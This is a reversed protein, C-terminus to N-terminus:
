VGPPCEFLGGCNLCRVARKPKSRMSEWIAASLVGIISPTVWVSSNDEYIEFDFDNAGCNGCELNIAPWLQGCHICTQSSEAVAGKCTKCNALSPSTKFNPVRSMRESDPILDGPGKQDYLITDQKCHPCKIKRGQAEPPFRMKGRCAFCQCILRNDEAM